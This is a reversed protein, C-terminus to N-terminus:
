LSEIRRRALSRAVFKRSVLCCVLRKGLRRYDALSSAWRSLSLSAAAAATTHSVASHTRADTHVQCARGFNLGATKAASSRRAACSDIPDMNAGLGLPAGARACLTFEIASRFNGPLVQRIGRAATLTM